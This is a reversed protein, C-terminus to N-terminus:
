FIAMPANLYCWTLVLTVQLVTTDVILWTVGHCCGLLVSTFGQDSMVCYHCWLLVLTVCYCCWIMM